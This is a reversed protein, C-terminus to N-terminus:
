KKTEDINPPTSVGESQPTQTNPQSETKPQPGTPNSPAPPTPNDIKNLAAQIDYGPIKPGWSNIFNKATQKDNANVYYTVLEDLNAQTIELM